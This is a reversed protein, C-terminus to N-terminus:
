FAYSFSFVAIRPPMIATPRLFSAGSQVSQATVVNTNLANFVDARVSAKHGRFRVSKELRIDLLYANPYRREGSPEVPVLLTPITTGGSFLVTRQFSNGSVANFNTSAMMGLRPIHYSVGLKGYWDRTRIHSFIESNPTLPALDGALPQNAWTVGFTGLLLWNNSSRKTASVEFAKYINVTNPDNVPMTTVFAAGQLLTSYEYYTVTQGDDATGISGDPGPDRNTIPIDYSDYPRSVGLLRRQDSERTYVGSARVAFNEMIEQELNISFEDTKPQQEDPNPLRTAGGTRSIFDPGNPNLNTEGTDYLKNGNLDRWTYTTVISANPNVPQVEGTFRMKNFRGWGGKIVTKGRGTLDYAFHLRPAVANWINLQIKPIEAADSFDGAPHTQEPVHGDNRDYRLGLNLTLRGMNWADQLFVGTYNANNLTHVPSNLTAIQFPVGSRFRLTYNGSAGRSQYDWDYTAPSYDLGAKFAHSGAIWGSKFWNADAHIQHRYQDAMIPVPWASIADGTYMQTVLDFTAVKGPSNGLLPSHYLWFGYHANVSVSQGLIGQWQGKQTRGTQDQTVRSEWPVFASNNRISYKQNWQHFFIFKNNQSAQYSFKSTWFSQIKPQDGPSGDPKFNGLIQVNDRARRGGVYFWLKDRVVRGGLDGNLDFRQLLANGGTVGAAALKDDINKSQAWPGTLAYYAGGHFDNGGSKLVTNLWVGSGPMEATNGITAISAEDLSTFDWYVGETSGAAATTLVGDLMEWQDGSRGFNNFGPGSTFKSGGVDFNGASIRVGPAQVVLSLLSNRTTPLEELTERLFETRPTTSMVDVVPSQGSVTVSEALDGVTLVIDLKAVFGLTLRIEERQVSQFGSLEYRVGYNGIPLGALRYEGKSDSITTISPVQLAPSTATVTVGPMVAGSQDTVQGVISADAGQGAALSPHLILVFGLVLMILGSQRPILIRAAEAM